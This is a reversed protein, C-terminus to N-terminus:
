TTALMRAVVAMADDIAIAFGVNNAQIGGGSGAVATNIGIVRAEADLLPGGSNGSSIATDTQVLGSLVGDSTTISRDIASVIGTSVTPGGVLGLANGIAVVPQGVTLGDSTGVRAPVLGEIDLVQLVALDRSADLGIIDARRSRQEGAVTVTIETAGAVVHANTLVHGDADLVVGTGAGRGTARFPGNRSEIVTDISVVSPQARTVVETVDIGTLTATPMPTAVGTVGDTGDTTADTTADTATGDTDAAITITDSSSASGALAGGLYGGVSGALLAAVVIM